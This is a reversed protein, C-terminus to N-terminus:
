VITNQSQPSWWWFLNHLNGLLKSYEKESLGMVISKRQISLNSVAQSFVHMYVAEKYSMKKKEWMNFASLGIQSVQWYEVDILVLIRGM